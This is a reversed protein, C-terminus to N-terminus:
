KVVPATMSDSLHWAPVLPVQGCMACRGDGATDAPVGDVFDAVEERAQQLLVVANTLRVDCGAHEVAQVADHIAMEAPTLRDLRIRRPPEWNDSM